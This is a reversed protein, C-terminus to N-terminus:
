AGAMTRPMAVPHGLGISQARLPVRGTIRTEVGTAGRMETVPVGFRQLVALFGDEKGAGPHFLVTDGSAALAALLLAPKLWPVSGLGLGLGQDQEQDLGRGDDPLDLRLPVALRPGRVRLLDAESAEVQLGMRSLPELLPAMAQPAVRLALPFDYLGALGLLLAALEPGTGTECVAPPALLAGNGVGNVLLASGSRRFAIGFGSLLGAAEAFLPEEPLGEIRSEGAALGAVCLLFLRELRDDPLSLLASPAAAPMSREM